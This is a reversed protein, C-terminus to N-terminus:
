GVVSVNWDAYLDRWVCTLVIGGVNSDCVLNEELLMIRTKEPCVITFNNFQWVLQLNLIRIQDGNQTNANSPLSMSIAGGGTWISYTRGAVLTGGNTERLYAGRDLNMYAEGASAAGTGGFSIPTSALPNGNARQYATCRWNGSGMSYFVASDGAATVINAGGPLIMSTANHTLTLAGSFLVNRIVGASIVGFSTIGTTGTIFVSNSAVLGINCTAASAVYVAQAFNLAGTMTDGTKSVAQAEALYIWRRLFLTDTTNAGVTLTITTGNTASYDDGNGLLLVGNLFLEIQGPSYGGAPTFVAQGNSTPTISLENFVPLGSGAGGGVTSLLGEPTVTLGSGVKVGGLTSPTASPLSYAPAIEAYASGGWRWQRVPVTDTTVYIVGAVGTVPLAAVNAVEVVDDVYAPLQGAPVKGGVLDAKGAVAADITGLASRLRPIDETQLNDVHPLALNLNPTRDDIM